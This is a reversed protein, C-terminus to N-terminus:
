YFSRAADQTAFEMRSPTPTPNSGLLTCHAKLGILARRWNYSLCGSTSACWAACDYPLQSVLHVEGIAAATREQQYLPPARVGSTAGTLATADPVYSKLYCMGNYHTFARCRGDRACANRCGTATTAFSYFDGGNRDINSELRETAQQVAGSTCNSNPFWPM